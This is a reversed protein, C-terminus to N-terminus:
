KQFARGRCPAGAAGSGALVAWGALLSSYVMALLPIRSRTAMMPIPQVLNPSNHSLPISSRRVSAATSADAEAPIGMWSMSAKQNPVMVEDTEPM